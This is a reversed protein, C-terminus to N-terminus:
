RSDSADTIGSDPQIESRNPELRAHIAETASNARPEVSHALRPRGALQDGKADHLAEAAAHEHRDPERQDRLARPGLADPPRERQDAHRIRSPGIKPGMMPPRITTLAAQCHIKTTLMGIAITAITTAARSSWRVRAAGVGAREVPDASRQQAGASAPM